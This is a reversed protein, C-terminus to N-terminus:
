EVLLDDSFWLKALCLQNYNSALNLFSKQFMYCSCLYCSTFYLGKRSINQLCVTEASIKAFKWLDQSFHENIPLKQVLFSHSFAQVKCATLNRSPFPNSKAFSLVCFITKLVNVNEVVNNKVDVLLMSHNQYHKWTKLQYYKLQGKRGVMYIDALILMQIPFYTLVSNKLFHCCDLFSKSDIKINTIVWSNVRKLQKHRMVFNMLLKVNQAQACSKSLISNQMWLFESFNDDFDGVAMLYKESKCKLAAVRTGVKSATGFGTFIQSKIIVFCVVSGLESALFHLPTQILWRNWVQDM